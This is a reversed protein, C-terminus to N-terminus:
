IQPVCVRRCNFLSLHLVQTLVPLPDFGVGNKLLELLLEAREKRQDVCMLQPRSGLSVFCFLLFSFPKVIVTLWWTCFTSSRFRCSPLFQCAFDPCSVSRAAPGQYCVSGSISIPVAGSKNRPVAYCLQRFHGPVPSTQDWGDM